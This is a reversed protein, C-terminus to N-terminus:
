KPLQSYTLFLVLIYLLSLPKLIHVPDMPSLLPNLRCLRTFSQIEYFSSCKRRSELVAMQCMRAHLADQAEHIYILFKLNIVKM